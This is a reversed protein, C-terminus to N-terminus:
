LVLVLVDLRTLGIILTVGITVLNWHVFATKFVKVLAMWERVMRDTPDNSENMGIGM